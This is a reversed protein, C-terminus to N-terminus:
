MASGSGRSGQLKTEVCIAADSAAVIAIAKEFAAIDDLSKVPSLEEQLAIALIRARGEAALEDDVNDLAFERGEPDNGPIAYGSGEVWYRSRLSELKELLASAAYVRVGVNAYGPGQSYASKKLKAHGFGRPLGEDDIRIPYQPRDFRAAPVVLDVHGESSRLADLALLSSAITVRSNADGGFNTIVYEADKWLSRCQWVADAHGLPSGYPAAQEFFVREEPAVALPKLIEDEIEREWGRIVIIRRGLNKTAAVAYAAIPIFDASFTLINKVPYLGRPRSPDFRVNKGGASGLGALSAEVSRKWRSGSGALLTVCVTRRSVDELYAEISLFTRGDDSYRNKEELAISAIESRLASAESLGKTTLYGLSIEM